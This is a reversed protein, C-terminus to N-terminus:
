TRIILSEFGDGLDEPVEGAHFRAASLGERAGLSRYPQLVWRRVGATRLEDAMRKLADVDLLDPHVTTRVEFPTGSAVLQSLSALARQGSDAVRTIREYEDFPAKVDFGVWDVLPLVDNFRDPSPGGTHVAVEFGMAHMERMADPLAAQATPEGGSFVVGDLLGRRNGLFTRVEDWSTEGDDAIGSILHPNHCYSCNWPCGRAFVVAALQDPWDVTSLPVFGGISLSTPTKM